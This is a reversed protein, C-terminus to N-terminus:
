FDPTIGKAELISRCRALESKTLESQLVAPVTSEAQMNLKRNYWSQENYYAVWERELKMYDAQSNLCNLVSYVEEEDTGTPWWTIVWSVSRHAVTANWLREVLHRFDTSGTISTGTEQEIRSDSFFGGGSSSSKLKKYLVVVIVVVLVALAILLPKKNKKIFKQIDTKM